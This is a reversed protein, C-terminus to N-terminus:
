LCKQQLHGHCAFKFTSFLFSFILPKVTLNGTQTKVM